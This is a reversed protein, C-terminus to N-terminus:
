EFQGNMLAEGVLPSIDHNTHCMKGAL